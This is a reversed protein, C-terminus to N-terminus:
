NIYISGNFRNNIAAILIWKWKFNKEFNKIIYNFKEIAVPDIENEKDDEEVKKSTSQNDKKKKGKFIGKVELEQIM